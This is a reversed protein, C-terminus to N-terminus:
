KNKDEKLARLLVEPDMEGIDQFEDEKPMEFPKDSPLIASYEEANKSKTALVFERFREKEQKSQRGEYYYMWILIFPLYLFSLVTIIKEM